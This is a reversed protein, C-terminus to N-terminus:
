NDYIIDVVIDGTYNKLSAKDFSLHNIAMNDDLEIFYQGSSGIVIGDIGQNIYFKIGAAATIRLQVIPYCDNFASGSCLSAKSTTNPDNAYSRIQKIKRM